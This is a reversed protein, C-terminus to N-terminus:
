NIRVDFSRIELRSPTSRDDLRGSACVAQGPAPLEHAVLLFRDAGTTLWWHDDIRETVGCAEIEFSLVEVGAEKVAERFVAPVFAHGPAFAVETTQESISISVTAVGELRRRLAVEVTVACM